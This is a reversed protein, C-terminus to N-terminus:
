QRAQTEAARPAGRRAAVHEAVRQEVAALAAPTLEFLPCPRYAIATQRVSERLPVGPSLAPNLESVPASSDAFREPGTDLAQSGALAELTDGAAVLLVVGEAPVFIELWQGRDVREYGTSTATLPYRIRWEAQYILYRPPPAAREPPAVCGTGAAWLMLVLHFTRTNM